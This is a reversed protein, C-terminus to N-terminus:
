KKWRDQVRLPVLGHKRIQRFIRLSLSGSARLKASFRRRLGLFEKLRLAGAWRLITYFDHVDSYTSNLEIEQADDLTANVTISGSHARFSVLQEPVYSWDPYRTLALLKMYHDSGAGHYTHEQFPLRGLFMGDILDHTRFLMQSPSLLSGSMKRTSGRKSPVSGRAFRSDLAPRIPTGEETVITANTFVFGRDDGLEPLCRELFTPELWDDDHLIKAFKTEVRLLGDMWAFEPGSDLDRRVYRIRSGFEKAVAPTNDGSGHDVM